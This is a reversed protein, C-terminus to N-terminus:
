TVDPTALKEVFRLERPLWAIPTREGHEAILERGYKTIPDFPDDNVERGAPTPFEEDLRSFRSLPPYPFLTSRRPHGILLFFFFISGKSGSSDVKLFLSVTVQTTLLVDNVALDTKNLRTHPTSIVAKNM